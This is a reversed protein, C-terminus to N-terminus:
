FRKEGRRSRKIKSNIHGRIIEPGWYSLNYLSLGTGIGYQVRPPGLVSEDENGLGGQWIGQAMGPCNICHPM